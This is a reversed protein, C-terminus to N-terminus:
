SRQEEENYRRSVFKTTAGQWGPADVAKTDVYERSAVSAM